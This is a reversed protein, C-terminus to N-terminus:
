QAAETAPTPSGFLGKVLGASPAKKADAIRRQAKEREIRALVVAVEPEAALRAQYAKNFLRLTKGNSTKVVNGQADRQMDEDFRQQIVHIPVGTVEALALQLDTPESGDSERRGPQWEGKEVSAWTALAIAEVDPDEVNARNYRSEVVRGFGVAALSLLTPVRGDTLKEFDFTVMKTVHQKGDEGEPGYIELNLVSGEIRQTAIKIRTAM